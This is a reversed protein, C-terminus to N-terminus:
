ERFKHEDKKNKQNTKTACVCTVRRDSFFFVKMASNKKESPRKKEYIPPGNKQSHTPFRM